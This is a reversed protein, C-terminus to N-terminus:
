QGSDSKNMQHADQKETANQRGQEGHSGAADDAREIGRTAGGTNANSNAPRDSAEESSSGNNSMSGSPTSRSDPMSKTDPGTPPDAFASGCLSIGFIVPFLLSLKM